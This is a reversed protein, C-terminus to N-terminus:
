AEGRGRKFVLWAMNELEFRAKEPFQRRLEPLGREFWERFERHLADSKQKLELALQNDTKTM